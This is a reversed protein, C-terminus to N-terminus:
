DGTNDGGPAQFLTTGRAIIDGSIVTKQPVKDGALIKMLLDVAYRGAYNLHNDVSTLEPECCVSIVSNNYGAIQMDEPIRIGNRAAFKCAGVALEDDSTMIADWREGKQWRETLMACTESITGNFLLRGGEPAKRGAAEFAEQYGKLKQGASYSMARYLYLIRDARELFRGTLERTVKTDDCVTSYVNPADLFCNVMMVPVEEAAERIYQNKELDEYVFSSGVVVMGDVRKSLLLKMYKVRDEWQYGTCSLLANYQYKHLQQEVHYVAAALVLDSSDACLVGITNMTNLGLGRAFANPQYGTEEMVKLIKNRTKESVRSNGNLVRSVTAISVGAKESIDYINM